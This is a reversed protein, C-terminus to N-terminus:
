VRMYVSGSQSQETRHIGLGGSECKQAVSKGQCRPFVLRQMKESTKSGPREAITINGICATAGNVVSVGNEAKMSRETGVNFTLEEM